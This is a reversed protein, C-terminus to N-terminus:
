SFLRGALQRAFEIPGPQSGKNLVGLVVQDAGAELHENVREAIADADGWVVLDDVLRDILECIDTNSFGRKAPVPPDGGDLTDLYDNL